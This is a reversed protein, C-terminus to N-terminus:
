KEINIIRLNTISINIDILVPLIEDAWAQLESAKMQITLLLLAIYDTYLLCICIAIFDIEVKSSNSTFDM